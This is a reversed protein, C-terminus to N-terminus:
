KRNQPNYLRQKMLSEEQKWAMPSTTLTKNKGHERYCFLSLPTHVINTVRSARIYFEYDEMGKIETNFGGIKDFVSKAIVSNTSVICSQALYMPNFPFKFERTKVGNREIDYDSYVLGIVDYELIKAVSAAIKDPYYYDDADLFAIVEGTAATLGLNRTAATGSNQPTKLKILERSSSLNAIVDASNDTSCDDVVIIELNKYNQNTVSDVAEQLFHAYNYNTVIVSVKLPVDFIDM